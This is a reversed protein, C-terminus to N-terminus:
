GLTDHLQLAVGVAKLQQELRTGVRTSRVSQLPLM